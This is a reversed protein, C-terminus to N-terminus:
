QIENAFSCSIASSINDNLLSKKANYNVIFDASIVLYIFLCAFTGHTAEIYRIIVM